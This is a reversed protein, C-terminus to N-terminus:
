ISHVRAIVIFSLLDQAFLMFIRCFTLPGSFNVCLLQLLVISLRPVLDHYPLGSRLSRLFSPTDFFSVIDLYPSAATLVAM